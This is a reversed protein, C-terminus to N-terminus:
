RDKRIAEMIAGGLPTPTHMRRRREAEAKVKLWLEYAGAARLEAENVPEGDLWRHLIPPMAALPVERDSKAEDEERRVAPDIRDPLHTDPDEHMM